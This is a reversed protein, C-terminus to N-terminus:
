NQKFTNLLYWNFSIPNRVDLFKVVESCYECKNLSLNSNLQVKITRQLVNNRFKKQLNHGDFNIVWGSNM